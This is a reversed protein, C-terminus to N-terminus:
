RELEAQLSLKLRHLIENNLSRSNAQAARKLVKKLDDPLRVSTPPIQPTRMPTSESLNKPM